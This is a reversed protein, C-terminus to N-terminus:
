ATEALMKLQALVSDKNVEARFHRRHKTLKEMRPFLQHFYYLDDCWFVLPHSRPIDTNESFEPIGELGLRQLALRVYEYYHFSPHSHTYAILNTNYNDRIWELCPIFNPYRNEEETQRSQLEKLSAEHRTQFIHQVFPATKHRLFHLIQNATKRRIHLHKLVPNVENHMYANYWFSPLCIRLAQPAEANLYDTTIQPPRDPEDRYHQFIFVDCQKVAEVIKTKLHERNLFNDPAWAAFLGEDRWFPMFDFDRCDLVEYQSNLRFQKALAGLQCNGYFLVKM